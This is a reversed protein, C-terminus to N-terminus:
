QLNPVDLLRIEKGDPGAAVLVADEVHVGYPFVYTMRKMQLEANLQGRIMSQLKNRVYPTAALPFILYVALILTLLASTGYLLWRGRSRSRKGRNDIRGTESPSPQVTQPAPADPQEPM